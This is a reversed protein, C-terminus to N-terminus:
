HLVISRGDARDVKFGWSDLLGIEPAIHPPTKIRHITRPAGPSQPYALIVDMTKSDFFVFQDPFRQELLEANADPPFVPASLIMGGATPEDPHPPSASLGPSPSLLPSPLGILILLALRKATSFRPRECQKLELM